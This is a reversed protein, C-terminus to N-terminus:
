EGALTITQRDLGRGPVGARVSPEACRLEREAIRATRDRGVFPRNAARGRRRAKVSRETAGAQHCAVAATGHGFVALGDREIRRVLKGERHEGLETRSSVRYSRTFARCLGCCDRLHLPAWSWRTSDM